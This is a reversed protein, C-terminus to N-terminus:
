LTLSLFFQNLEGPGTVNLLNKISSRLMSKLLENEESGEVGLIM